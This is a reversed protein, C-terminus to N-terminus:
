INQEFKEICDFWFDESEGKETRWSKVGTSYKHTLIPRRDYGYLEYQSALGQCVGMMNKPIALETEAQTIVSFQISKLQRKRVQEAIRWGTEQSFVGFIHEMKEGIKRLAPYKQMRKRSLLGGLRGFQRIFFKSMNQWWHESLATWDGGTELINKTRFFCFIPSPFNHYKGTKWFPYPAGIAICNHRNLQEICFSDWHEKFIHVDPDIILAYETSIFKMAYNLAYSHGRSSTYGKSDLKHLTINSDHSAIKEISMDKGNTNDIIVIRIDDHHQAKSKLNGLLKEIYDSSYWNVIIVSISNM